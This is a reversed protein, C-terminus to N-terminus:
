TEQSPQGSMWEPLPVLRSAILCNKVWTWTVVTAEALEPTYEVDERIVVYDYSDVDRSAYSLEMVAEVRDAGMALIIHNIAEQSKDVIGSQKRGKPFPMLDPGVCLISKKTFLKSPVKNEMIHTLHDRCDGWDLDVQQSPRANLEESFGQPLLYGLWSPEENNQLSDNLWEIRLCPIGLALAMLFKPKQNPDDALLFLRDIDKNRWKVDSQTLVWRNYNKSYCGDWEWLTPVEDVITGGSRRIANLLSERDTDSKENGSNLTVMFATKSFFGPQSVSFASQGSVLSQKSPSPSPNAKSPVVAPIIDGVDVTRDQWGHSIIKNPIRIDQLMVTTEVEGEIVKVTIIRGNVSNVDMVESSGRHRARHVVDGVRIDCLRMKSVPVVGETQDDFHVMYKDAAVHSYITGPYYHSDGSWIAFIRTPESDSSRHSAAVVEQLRKNHRTAPTAALPTQTSKKGSKANKKVTTAKTERKRKRSVLAPAKFDGDMDHDDAPETATDEAEEDDRLPKDESEEEGQSDEAISSRGGDGKAAAAARERKPRTSTAAKEPKAANGRGKSSRTSKPIDQEPLSSPVEGQESSSAPKKTAASKRTKAATVDEQGDLEPGKRKSTSAGSVADTPAIPTPKSGRSVKWETTTSLEKEKGKGPTTKVPRTSNALPIDDEDDEEEEEPEVRRIKKAPETAEDMDTPEEEDEVASDPVVDDVSHNADQRSSSATVTRRDQPPSVRAKSPSSRGARMPESDPIVDMQDDDVPVRRVPRSGRASPPAPPRVSTLVPVTCRPPRADVVVDNFTPQTKHLPSPRRPPVPSTRRPPLACQDNAFSPQTEQMSALSHRQRPVPFTRRRPKAGEDHDYVPQTEQIASSSVFGGRPPAMSGDDFAPQTEEPPTPPFGGCPPITSQDEDNAPQTEQLGFTLHVNQATSSSAARHNSVNADQKQYKMYRHRKHAPVMNLLSTPNASDSANGATSPGSQPYSPVPPQPPKSSPGGPEPYSAEFVPSMTPSLLFPPESQSTGPQSLQSYGPQFESQSFSSQSSQRTAYHQGPPAMPVALIEKLLEDSPVDMDVDEQQESVQTLMQTAVESITEPRAVFRPQAAQIAARAAEAPTLPGDAFLSASPPTDSRYSLPEDDVSMHADLDVESDPQRQASTQSDIIQTGSQGQSQKEQSMESQSPTSDVLVTADPAPSRRSGWRRPTNRSYMATGRRPSNEPSDRGLESIPINFNRSNRIFQQQLDPSPGRAFSDVSSERSKSRRGAAPRTRTTRYTTRVTSRLNSPTRSAILPKSPSQLITTSSPKSTPMPINVPSLSEIVPDVHPQKTPMNRSHDAHPSVSLSSPSPTASARKKLENLPRTAGINEKQSGENLEEVEQEQYDESQTQTEALGHLHYHPLTNSNRSSDSSIDNSVTFNLSSASQDEVHNLSLEKAPELLDHLLQSAQSEVMESDDYADM